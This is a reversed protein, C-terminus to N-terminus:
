VTAPVPASLYVPLTSFGNMIFTGQPEMEEPAVALTMEPFRAFLAPLAISMELRALSAGICYHIGYGFAMHEKDRRTIDFSDARPGHREPDRGAATFGILIPDGAPITVGGVEIDEIAFRLPLQAIPGELRLAEETVDDWSYQGSLVLELQEPNCLLHYVAKSLLNMVTESGAGLALFLTGVLESDTLRSGDESQAAILDTTMDDDPERRKLEVLDLLVQQWMAVNAEAQEPTMTTDVTAEGGALAAARQEQPVGFLDCIMAAPLQYAFCRKLDVPGGVPNAAICDLLEAVMLEIRPRMVEVRRPTFAKSILKRLRVHDAGYATTMNDMAIWSAMEWDPGIEGNVFAPWHQRPDKSVRTDTLVKRINAYGNISWGLVGGPLEVRAAPQERLLAGEAHVDRGTKDLVHAHPCRSEEM